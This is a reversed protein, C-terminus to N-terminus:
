GVVLMFFKLEGSTRELDGTSLCVTARQECAVGFSSLEVREILTTDDTGVRGWDTVASELKMWKCGSWGKLSTDKMERMNHPSVIFGFSKAALKCTAVEEKSRELKQSLQLNGAGLRLVEAQPTSTKQREVEGSFKRFKRKM